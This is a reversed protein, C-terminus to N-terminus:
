HVLALQAISVVVAVAFLSLLIGRIPPFRTDM